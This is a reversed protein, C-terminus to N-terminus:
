AHGKPILLELSPEVNLAKGIAETFAADLQKRYLDAAAEHIAALGILVAAGSEGHAKMGELFALDAQKYMEFIEPTLVVVTRPDKPKSSM